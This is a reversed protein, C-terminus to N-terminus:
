SNTTWIQLLIISNGKLIAINKLSIYNKLLLYTPVFIYKCRPSFLWKQSFKLSCQLVGEFNLFKNCDLRLYKGRCYPDLFDMTAPWKSFFGKCIILRCPGFKSLGAVLSQVVDNRQGKVVLIAM